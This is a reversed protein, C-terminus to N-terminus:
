EDTAKTRKLGSNFFLYIIEISNPLFAWLMILSGYLANNIAVNPIMVDVFGKWFISIKFFNEIKIWSQTKDLEYSRFM